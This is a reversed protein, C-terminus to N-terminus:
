EGLPKVEAEKLPELEVEPYIDSVKRLNCEKVALMSTELVDDYTYEGHEINNFAEETIVKVPNELVVQYVLCEERTWEEPDHQQNEPRSVWYINTCIGFVTGYFLVAKPNIDTVVDGIQFQNPLSPLLQKIVTISDKM